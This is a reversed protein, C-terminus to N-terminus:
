KTREKNLRKELKAREKIAGVGFGFKEDLKDIKQQTTLKDHEAQREEAEERRIQKRNKYM